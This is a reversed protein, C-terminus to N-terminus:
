RLRVERKGSESVRKPQVGCAAAPARHKEAKAPRCSFAEALMAFLAELPGRAEPHRRSAASSGRPAGALWPPAMPPNRQVATREPPPGSPAKPRISPPEHGQRAASGEGARPGSPQPRSGYNTGLYEGIAKADAQDLPAGYAKIMKAVEADWGAVDLFGANMPIYDLSHCANCHAVVKDRGAGRKLEAPKEATQATATVAIAAMGAIVISRMTWSGLGM